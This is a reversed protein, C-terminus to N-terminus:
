KSKLLYSRKMTMVIRDDQKRVTDGVVGVLGSGGPTPRLELVVIEVHITDNTFVPAVYRIEDIGLAAHCDLGAADWSAYMTASTLGAAMAILCPGGLIRQRFPSDRMYVDDTHLPGSEWTVNVIASFDGDTITRRPTRMMMGPAFPGQIFSSPASDPSM